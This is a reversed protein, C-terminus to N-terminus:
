STVAKAIAKAQFRPSYSKKAVAELKARLLSLAPRQQRKAIEAMVIDLADKDVVGLRAILEERSDAAAEALVDVTKALPYEKRSTSGMSYRVGNADIADQTELAARLFNDLEDKRGYLIKALRAVEERERGIAVLDGHDTCIFERKGALADAYAPCQKRHDCRNCHTNPKAAFETALEIQKITAVVYNETAWRDERSRSTRQAVGHRVMDLELEVHEAWPWLQRAALDYISLQLSADVEDQAFLVRHSKYDRVRITTDDIRDVRDMAGIIRHGDIRLDFEQEIGLVNRYDVTGERLAWRQVIALGEAFLAPETLPSDTWERRFARVADDADIRNTRNSRVHERMLSELARHIVTGFQLEIAPESSLGDIYHLKFSLPCTAYRNLRSYSYHDAAAAVMAADGADNAGQVRLHVISKGLASAGSTLPNM